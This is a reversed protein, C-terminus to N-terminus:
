ACKMECGQHTSYLPLPSVNPSVTNSCQLNFLENESVNHEPNLKSPQLVPSILMEDDEGNGGAETIIASAALASSDTMIRREFEIDTSALNEESKLQHLVRLLGAKKVSKSEASRASLPMKFNGDLSIRRHHQLHFNAQGSTSTALSSTMVADSAEEPHLKLCSSSQQLQLQQQQSFDDIRLSQPRTIIRPLGEGFSTRRSLPALQIPPRSTTNSSSNGNNTSEGM